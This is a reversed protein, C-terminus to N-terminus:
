KGAGKSYKNLLKEMAADCADILGPIDGITRLRDEIRTEMLPVDGLHIRFTDHKGRKWSLEGYKAEAAHCSKILATEVSKIQGVVKDLTPGFDKM